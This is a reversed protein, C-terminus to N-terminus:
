SITAPARHDNMLPQYDVAPGQQNDGPVSRVSEGDATENRATNPFMWTSTPAPKTRCSRVWRMLRQPGSAQGIKVAATQILRIVL